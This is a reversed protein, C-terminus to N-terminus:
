QFLEHVLQFIKYNLFGERIVGSCANNWEMHCWQMSQLVGGSSDVKCDHVCDSIFLRKTVVALLNTARTQAM